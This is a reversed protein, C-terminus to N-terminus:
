FRKRYGEPYNKYGGEGGELWKPPTVPSAGGKLAKSLIFLDVIQQVMKSGDSTGMLEKNKLMKDIDMVSSSNMIKNFEAASNQNAQKLGVNQELLNQVTQLAAALTPAQLAQRRTNEAWDRANQDRIVNFQLSAELPDVESARAKNGKMKEEYGAINQEIERYFDRMKPDAKGNAAEEINLIDQFAGHKLKNQTDAIINERSKTQSALQSGMELANGAQQGLNSFSSLTNGPTYSPLPVSRPMDSQGSSATIGEGYILNPNLGAEKYRQMQQVPSNYANQAAIDQLAWERQKNMVGINYQEQERNAKSQGFLNFIDGLLSSGGGIAAGLWPSSTGSSDPM